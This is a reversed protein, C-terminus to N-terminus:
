QEGQFEQSQKLIEQRNSQVKKDAKLKKFHKYKLIKSEKHITFFSNLMKIAVNVM